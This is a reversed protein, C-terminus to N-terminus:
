PQNPTAIDDIQKLKKTYNEFQKATPNKKFLGAMIELARHYENRQVEDDAKSKALRAQERFQILRDIRAAVFALNNTADSDNKNLAIARGYSNTALEWTKQVTDIFEIEDSATNIKQWGAQYLTNGLNYYAQQQLKLDPALTVLQFDQLAEDYNTARYAAAGANFVLRL